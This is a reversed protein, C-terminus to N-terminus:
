KLKLLEWVAKEPTQAIKSLGLKVKEYEELTYELKITDSQSPEKPEIGEKEWKDIGLNIGWDLLTEREWNNSLLEANWNGFHANDKIVLEELEDATFDSAYQVWDSPITKEGIIESWTELSYDIREKSLEPSASLLVEQIAALDYNAIIHLITAHRQNGIPLYGEDDAVLGRVTMMKPNRLLSKTLREVGTKTITRPNNPNAQFKDIRIRTM